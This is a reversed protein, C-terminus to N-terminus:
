TSCLLPVQGVVGSCCSHTKRLWWLNCFTCEVVVNLVFACV